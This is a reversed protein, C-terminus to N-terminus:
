QDDGGKEQIGFLRVAAILLFSICFTVLVYAFPPVENFAFYMFSTVWAGFMGYAVGRIIDSTGTSIIINQESM